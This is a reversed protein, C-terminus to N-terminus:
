SVKRRAERELMAIFRNITRQQAGNLNMFRAGLLAQDNNKINIMHRAELACVFKEGDAFHIECEPLLQGLAPPKPIARVFKIGLGGSSINYLEGKAYDGPGLLLVVPVPHSRLLRVRYSSRRQFYKLTKPFRIKYFNINAQIGAELLAADFRIDVGDYVGFVTLKRQALFIKHGEAPHLEDISIWHHATDIEMIMSNYTSAASPVKVSLLARSTQIHVLLSHIKAADDVIEFQQSDLPEAEASSM